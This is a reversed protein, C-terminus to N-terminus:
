RTAFVETREWRLRVASPKPKDFYFADILERVNRKLDDWDAGDTAIGNGRAEALYRGDEDLTVDFILEDM